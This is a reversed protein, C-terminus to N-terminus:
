YFFINWVSNWWWCCLVCLINKCSFLAICDTVDSVTFKQRTFFFNGNSNILTHTHTDFVQCFITNKKKKKFIWYFSFIYLLFNLYILKVVQMTYPKQKTNSWLVTYVLASLFHIKWYIQYFFCGSISRNTKM